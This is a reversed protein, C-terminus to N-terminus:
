PHAPPQNLRTASPMNLADLDLYTGIEVDKRSQKAINRAGKERGIRRKM